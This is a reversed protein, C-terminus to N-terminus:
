KRMKEICTTHNGEDKRHTYEFCQSKDNNNKYMTPACKICQQTPVALVVSSYTSKKHIHIINKAAYFHKESPRNPVIDGL